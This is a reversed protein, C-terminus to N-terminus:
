ETPRRQHLTDYLAATIGGAEFNRPDFVESGPLTTQRIELEGDRDRNSMVVAGDRFVASITRTEARLFAPANSIGLERAFAVFYLALRQEVDREALGMARLHQRWHRLAPMQDESIEDPMRLRWGEIALGLGIISPKLRMGEDYAKTLFVIPHPDADDMYEFRPDEVPGRIAYLRHPQDWGGVAIDAELTRILSHLADTNM